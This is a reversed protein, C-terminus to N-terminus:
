TILYSDADLALSEEMCDPRECYISTEEKKFDYRHLHSCFRPIWAELRCNLGCFEKLDCVELLRHGVCWCFCGHNRRAFIHLGMSGLNGIFEIDCEKYLIAMASNSDIRQGKRKLLLATNMRGGREFRQEFVHRKM